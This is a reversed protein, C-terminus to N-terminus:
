AVAASRHLWDQYDSIFKYERILSLYYKRGRKILKGPIYLLFYRVSTITSCSYKDILVLKKFLSFINYSVAKLLMNAYNVILDDTTIHAGGFGNKFEKIYNEATGRGCYYQFLQMMKLTNECVAIFSYEYYFDTINLPLQLQSKDELKKPDDVKVKRKLVLFRRAKKWSHLKFNEQAIQLSNSIRRFRRHDLTRVLEDFSGYSKAKIIYQINNKELFEFLKEKFYGSDARIVIKHHFRRPIM